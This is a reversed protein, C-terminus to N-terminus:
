HDFPGLVRISIKGASLMCSDLLCLCKQPLALIHEWHAQQTLADLHFFLDWGYLGPFTGGEFSFM